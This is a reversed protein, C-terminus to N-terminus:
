IVGYFFPILFTALIWFLLNFGVGVKTFDIFKYGGVGYVMTNTQYGVPTMFSASAGLAVAVIFPMPSLELQQATSIAIPALLAASANNSMMETLLSTMLYLGSIIAIPGWPGISDIVANAVIFSLGTSEMALGLSLAGALLFVVKWDIVDYVEKIPLCGTLILITSAILVGGLVDLIEFTSLFIVGLLCLMVIAFNRWNIMNSKHETLLVFPQNQQYEEVRLKELRNNKIEILVIDGAKLPTNMLRDHIIDERHKIALPIARYRQRFNVENMTKGEFRSNSTIILEVLSTDKAAFHHDSVKLTPRVNIDLQDKLKQLQEVNSVVKLIDGNKIIYDGPPVSIIEGNRHVELIEMGYEKVIHADRIRKNASRSDGLLEIETIYDRLHYKGNDEDKRDPLLKRGVLLMYIMGAVLLSVGIPALTFMGFGPVGSQRAVGDVLINTSTGILTCMGGFISAYSLPILLKSASLGAEKATKVIIPIFLAVIPTNNIFASVVAVSLMMMALGLSYNKKYMRAFFTGVRTLAGTRLLSASLIFMFLVTVTAANSFGAVAERPSLIGLVVLSCMILLAVVDVRIWEGIFLVLAGVLIVALIIADM